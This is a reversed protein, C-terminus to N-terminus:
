FSVSYSLSAWVEDEPNVSDEMSTQFYVGPSFTGPGVDIGTSLGWLIHSWDHAVSGDGLGTGDNYVLDWTFTIPQDQLGPLEFDYGFGFIHIFGGLSRAPGGGESPWMKVLVYHPVIGMPCLDPWSFAANVEQADAANRPNDPFNYYVYSVAYDTKYREGDLFSNAYTLTYDWEEHNVTSFGGTGSSTPQATWVNLSFGSGYLDVDISPQISGKDDMMDFGRWIYKSVYAVDLTVGLEEAHVIGAMSLLVVAVVLIGKRM